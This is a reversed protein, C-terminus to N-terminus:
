LSQRAPAHITGLVNIEKFQDAQRHKIRLGEGPTEPMITPEAGTRPVGRPPPGKVVLGGRTVHLPKEVIKDREAINGISNRFADHITRAADNMPQMSENPISPWDIVTPQARHNADIWFPEVLTEDLFVKNLLRYTPMHASMEAADGRERAEAWAGREQLILDIMKDRAAQRARLVEPPVFRRDDRQETLQAIAMAMKEAWSNDASSATAGAPTVKALIDPLIKALEVTVAASLAEKFEPTETVPTSMEEKEGFLETM